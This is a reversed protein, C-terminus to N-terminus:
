SQGALIKQVLAFADKAAVHMDYYKYGGLRGFFFVNNEKQAEQLYKKYLSASQEGPVPYYRENEGLQFDSPYEFAVITKSGAQPLFHKYETVRTYDYNTPYNIVAASQYQPLDM